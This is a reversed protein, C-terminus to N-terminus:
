RCCDEVMFDFLLVKGHHKAQSFVKYKGTAPLVVEADIEPGFKAPPTSEENHSVSSEGPMMGHTHIFHTLDASVIALHMPAGLYPELDTVPKGNNTIVYRLTTKAGAKILHPSLNLSVHYPGFDKETASDVKSAGMRPEGAVTVMATRSYAGEATMFDVGVLYRGAKPFRFRLPFAAQKLMAATVPGVDEPHIHGYFKLDEGILIVHLLREHHIMLGKVPQGNKDRVRLQMNVLTGATVKTPSTELTLVPFGETATEHMGGHGSMGQHELHAAHRAPVEHRLLSGCLLVTVVLVAEVKVRFVFEQAIPYFKPFPIFREIFLPAPDGSAEKRLFPLAVYRNYAGLSILVLFLAAKATVTWGYPSRVLADFSGVFSRGNFFATVAIMAVSYGAIRSFRGGVGAIFAPDEDPEAVTPFVARSLVFLSGGWCCVAALHLWDVLEAMSFDGMDAAHGSASKTMAIVGLIALLSSLFGKRDRYRRGACLCILLAINAAMGVLWVHGLHTRGIVTPLVSLVATLPQGSMEASRVMLNGASGAAMVVASFVLLRWMRTNLEQSGAVVWFKCLVTGVCYALFIFELWEPLTHLYSNDM